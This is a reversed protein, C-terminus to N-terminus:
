RDSIASREIIGEQLDAFLVITDHPDLPACGM